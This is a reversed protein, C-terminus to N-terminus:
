VMLEKLFPVRNQKGTNEIELLSGLVYYPNLYLGIITWSQWMALAAKEKQYSASVSPSVQDRLRCDRQAEVKDLM